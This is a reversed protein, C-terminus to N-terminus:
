NIQKLNENIIKRSERIAVTRCYTSAPMGLLKSAREIIERQEKTMKIQFQLLKTSVM